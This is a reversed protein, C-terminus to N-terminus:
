ILMFAQTGYTKVDNEFESFIREAIHGAQTGYTKVDNEFKYRLM